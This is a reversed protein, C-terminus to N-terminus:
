DGDSISVLGTSTFSGSTKIHIITILVKLIKFHKDSLINASANLLKDIRWFVERINSAYLSVCIGLAIGSFFELFAVFIGM